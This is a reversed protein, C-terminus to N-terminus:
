GRTGSRWFMERSAIWGRFIHFFAELNVQKRTVLFCAFELERDVASQATESKTKYEEWRVDDPNDEMEALESPSSFPRSDHAQRLREYCQCLMDMQRNRRDRTVVWLSIVLSLLAILIAVVDVLIM